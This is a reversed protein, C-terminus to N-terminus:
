ESQGVDTGPDARLLEEPASENDVRPRLLDNDACRTTARLLGDDQHVARQTELTERCRIAQALIDKDGKNRYRRVLRDVSPLAVTDRTQECVALIAQCTTPEASVMFEYLGQRDAVSMDLLVPATLRHASQTVIATARSRNSRPLPYRAVSAVAGINAVNNEADIQTLVAAMHHNRWLASLFIPTMTVMLALSAIALCNTLAILPVWNLAIFACLFASYVGILTGTLVRQQRANRATQQLWKRTAQNAPSCHTKKTINL